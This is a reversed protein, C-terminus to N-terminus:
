FARGLQRDEAPESDEIRGVQTEGFREELAFNQEVLNEDRSSDVIAHNIFFSTKQDNLESVLVSVPDVL